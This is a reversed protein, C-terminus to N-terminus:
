ISKDGSIQPTTNWSMYHFNVNRIRMSINLIKMWLQTKQFQKDTWKKSSSSWVFWSLFHILKWPILSWSGRFRIIRKHLKRTFDNKQKKIFSRHFWFWYIFVGLVIRQHLSHLFNPLNLDWSIKPFARKTIHRILIFSIQFTWSIYNDM